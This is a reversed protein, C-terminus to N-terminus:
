ASPSPVPSAETMKQFSRGAVRAALIWVVVIAATALSLWRITSFESFVLTIVLLLGVSLAKAFRQVFMDIFAKAGYKEERTTPVYLVEKALQNMSYSFGSDCTNLASGLLLVPAIMFGTSGLLVTVPLFLLATGVGFRTMVLSTLLLQVFLAVGNSVVYVTALHVTYAEKVLYHTVTEKFQFDMITSVMEYLGVIAMISLLYRSRFVLRAGELAPNGAAQTEKKQSVEPPPRRSVIRGVIMAILIIIMAIGLCIWLWESSSLDKVKARLVLSGFAGGTVGGLGILGYLRKATDPDVSDNLFAFFTVVMLTSFLDGFLYFSWVTVDGPTDLVTSYLVYCAIFFGSFIYTLQQRRFYRALLTFVTVAVFAVVMNLVKAILEAQAPRLHWYFIDFGIEDYYWLFLGSKIPKLIWFSAIVLFFYLFMLLALPVEERRINMIQRFPNAQSAM